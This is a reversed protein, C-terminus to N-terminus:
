RRDLDGHLATGPWPTLATPQCTDTREAEAARISVDDELFCGCRTRGDRGLLSGNGQRQANGALAVRRNGRQGSAIRRVEITMGLEIDSVEACRGIGATRREQM